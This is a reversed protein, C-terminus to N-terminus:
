NPLRARQLRPLGVQFGDFADNLFSDRDFNHIGVWPVPWADWSWKQESINLTNVETGGETLSGGEDEWCSSIHVM